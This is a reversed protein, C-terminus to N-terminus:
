NVERFTKDNLIAALKESCILSQLGYYNALSEQTECLIVQFSEQTMKSQRYFYLTCEHSGTHQRAKTLIAKESPSGSLM